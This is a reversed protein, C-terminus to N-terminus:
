AKSLTTLDLEELQSACWVSELNWCVVTRLAYLNYFTLKTYFSFFHFALVVRCIGVYWVCTPTDVCKPVVTRCLTWVTKDRPAHAWHGTPRCFVVPEVMQWIKPKNCINHITILKRLAHIIHDSSDEGSGRVSAARVVADRRRLSDGCRTCGGHCTSRIVSHLFFHIFSLEFWKSMAEFVQYANNDNHRWAHMLDAVSNTSRDSPERTHTLFLYTEQPRQM